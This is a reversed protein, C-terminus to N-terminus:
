AWRCGVKLLVASLIALTLLWISITNCKQQYDSSECSDQSQTVNHQSMHWRGKAMTAMTGGTCSSSFCFQPMAGPTTLGVTPRSPFSTYPSQAFPNMHINQTFIERPLNEYFCTHKNKCGGNRHIKPLESAEPRQNQDM